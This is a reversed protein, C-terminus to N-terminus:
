IIERKEAERKLERYAPHRGDLYQANTMSMVHEIDKELEDRRKKDKISKSAKLRYNIKQLEKDKIISVNKEIHDISKIINDDSMDAILDEGYYGHGHIDKDHVIPKPMYKLEVDKGGIKVTISKFPKEM